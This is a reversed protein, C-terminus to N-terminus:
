AAVELEHAALWAEATVSGTPSVPDDSSFLTGRPVTLWDQERTRRRANMRAHWRWEGNVYTRACRARGVCVADYLDGPRPDDPIVWWANILGDVIPAPSWIQGTRKTIKGDRDFHQWRIEAGPTQPKPHFERRPM